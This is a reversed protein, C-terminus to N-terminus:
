DSILAEIADQRTEYMPWILDLSTMKLLERVRDPVSCLVLQGGKAQTVKWCRLLLTLFISAVYNVQSLDVVILPEEELEVPALLVAAVDEALAPDLQELETSGTLITVGGRHELTFWDPSGPRTREPVSM